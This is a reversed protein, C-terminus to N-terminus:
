TNELGLLTRSIIANRIGESHHINGFERKEKKPRKGRRWRAKSEDGGKLERKAGLPHSNKLL